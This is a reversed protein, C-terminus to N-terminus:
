MEGAIIALDIPTWDIPYQLLHQAGEGQRDDESPEIVAGFFAQQDDDQEVRCTVDGGADDSGGDSQNDGSNECDNHHDHDVSHVPFEGGVFKPFLISMFRFENLNSERSIRGNWSGSLKPSSCLVFKAKGTVLRSAPQM